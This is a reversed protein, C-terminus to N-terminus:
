IIRQLLVIFIANWHRRGRSVVAVWQKCYSYHILIDFRSKFIISCTHLKQILVRFSTTLHEIFITIETCLLISVQSIFM